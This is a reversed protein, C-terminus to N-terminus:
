PSHVRSSPTSNANYPQSPSGCALFALYYTDCFEKSPLPAERPSGIREVIATKGSRDSGIGEKRVSWDTGCGADAQESQIVLYVEARGDGAHAVSTGQTQQLQIQQKQPDWHHRRDQRTREPGPPPVEEAVQWARQGKPQIGIQQVGEQALK